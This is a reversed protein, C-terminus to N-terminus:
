HEIINSNNTGLALRTGPLEAKLKNLFMKSGKVDQEALYDFGGLMGNVTASQNKSFLLFHVKFYYYYKGITRQEM